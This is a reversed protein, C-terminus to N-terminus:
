PTEFSQLYEALDRLDAESMTWRPMDESLEEGDGHLGDLVAARFAEFGYSRSHDDGDADDEDTHEDEGVLAIWRINPAEMTEMHMRHTGGRADTGHCTACTLRGGMMMAGSGPGGDYDIDSGSDTTGTFYIREGNTDFSGDGWATGPSGRNACSAALAFIAGSVLILLALQHGFWGPRVCSPRDVGRGQRSM